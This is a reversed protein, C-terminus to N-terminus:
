GGGIEGGRCVSLNIAALRVMGLPIRQFAAVININCLNMIVKTFYTTWYSQSFSKNGKRPSCEQNRVLRLLELAVRKM